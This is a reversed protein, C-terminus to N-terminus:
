ANGGAPESLREIEHDLLARYRLTRSRVPDDEEMGALRADVDERIRLWARAAEDSPSQRVFAVLDEDVRVRLSLKRALNIACPPCAICEFALLVFDGLGIGLAKRLRAFRIVLATATTWALAFGALVGLAGWFLIALPLIVVVVLATARIWPDLARTDAADVPAASPSGAEAVSGALEDAVRWSARHCRTLPTFPNLLHIRRGRIWTQRTGFQVRWGAGRAEVIAENVYLLVLGDLLYILGIALALLPYAPDLATM